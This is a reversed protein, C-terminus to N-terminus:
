GSKKPSAVICLENGEPDAMTAFLLSPDDPGTKLTDVVTAGLKTLRTMEAQIDRAFLDIHCRNKVAKPEPVKQLTLHNLPRRLDSGSLTVYPGGDGTRVEFGVAEQWFDALAVPDECDLVVGIATLTHESM